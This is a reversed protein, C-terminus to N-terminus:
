VVAFDSLKKKGGKMAVVLWRPRNGRGAWTEQHNAPNRYKPALTGKATGNRPKPARGNAKISQSISNLKELSAELRRREAGIRADIAAEVRARTELLEDFSMANIQKIVTLRKM